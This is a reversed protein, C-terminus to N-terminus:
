QKNPSEHLQELFPAETADKMAFRVSTRLGRSGLRSKLREYHHLGGPQVVFEVTPVWYFSKPPAKWSRASEVLAAYVADFLDDPSQSENVPVSYDRDVVIRDPQVDLTVCREMGITAGRRRLGLNDPLREFSRSTEGRRTSRTAGNVSPTGSAPANRLGQSLRRPETRSPLFDSALGDATRQSSHKPSLFAPTNDDLKEFVSDGEPSTLTNSTSSGTSLGSSERPAGRQQESRDSDTGSPSTTPVASLGHGGSLPPMGRPPTEENGESLSSAQSRSLSAQRDWRDQDSISDFSPIDGDEDLLIQNKAESRNRDLFALLTDRESLVKQVAERCAEVARPEPESLDLEWDEEILEYGFKVDLEALISRAIYYSYIGSPRVVLLIYPAEATGQEPRVRNWATWFAVLAQVGAILPNYKVTFGNLELRSLGVREPVFVFGSERCDILIPRRTTGSHTDFPLFAYKSTAAARVRKATALKQRAEAIKQEITSTENKLSQLVMQSEGIRDRAEELETRQKTLKSRLQEVDGVVASAMRQQSTVSKQWEDRKANLESVTQEWQRRLWEREAEINRRKEALEIERQVESPSPKKEDDLVLPAEEESVVPEQEVSMEPDDLVDQASDDDAIGEVNDDPQSARVDQARTIAQQRIQRTTVLLLLILAGMTCVLVALFPFLSVTSPNGRQPRSM